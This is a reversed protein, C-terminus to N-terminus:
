ARIPVVKKPRNAVIDAVHGSWRLLAAAIEAEYSYRDYTARVGGVAHGICLEAVDPRIGLRGLGTRMTRRLDHLTWRRLPQGGMVAIRQNLAALSLTWANFGAASRRRRSGFVYDEGDQRPLTRLIDLAMKPLTLVLTRRSKTREGPITVVGTEFDVESWRLDGIENRRCGTLVLLKVVAGFRDGECANWIARLESDDLARDRKTVPDPNNTGIIPNHECLGEGMAWAFLTGANARARAAATRGHKTIIEQLVAAVNARKITDLPLGHLV